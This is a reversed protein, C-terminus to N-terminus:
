GSNGIKNWHWGEFLTELGNDRRNWHELRAHEAQSPLIVLNDPHNNFRDGDLHHVIPETLKAVDHLV